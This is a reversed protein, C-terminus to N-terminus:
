NSSSHNHFGYLDGLIQGRDFPSAPCLLFGRNVEPQALDTQGLHAIVVLEAALAARPLGSGNRRRRVRRLRGVGRRAELGVREVAHGGRQQVGDRRARLSASRLEVAPAEATRHRSQDGYREPQHDHQERRDVSVRGRLGDGALV